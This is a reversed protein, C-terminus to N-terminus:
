TLREYIHYNKYPPLNNHASFGGAREKLVWEGASGAKQVQVGEVGTQLYNLTVTAAGGTGGANAGAARPFTGESLKSWTGGYKSAMKATTNEDSRSTYYLSGIPHASLFLTAESTPMGAKTLIDKAQAQTMQSILESLTPPRVPPINSIGSM